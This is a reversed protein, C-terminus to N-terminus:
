FRCPGGARRRRRTCLLPWTSLHHPASEAHNLAEAAANWFRIRGDSAIVLAADGSHELLEILSREGMLATYCRSPVSTTALTRANWQRPFHPNGIIERNAERTVIRTNRPKAHPRAACASGAGAAM